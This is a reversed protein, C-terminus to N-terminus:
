MRLYYGSLLGDWAEFWYEHKFRTLHPDIGAWAEAPTAGGLNQHTRVHNYFFRFEVLADGLADSSLVALQDLSAKLSGFFREIRGNQWPCHLDTRQHRIGLLFLAFCFVRSTFIPENDTRIMKPKGFRKISTVLRGVLTWSSKSHLAELTLAARSAHELIALVLCTQGNLTTKGTLDLAWFLNHPVAKPKANKIQRRLIAIQYLHKRITDSVYSKGVTMQRALAFRRNFSDAIKRCGSHPMLAKLRLVERHVWAPKARSRHPFGEAPAVRWYRRPHGGLCRRLALANFALRLRSAAYQLWVIMAHAFHITFALWCKLMHQISIVM